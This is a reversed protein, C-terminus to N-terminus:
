RGLHRPQLSDADGGVFSWRVCCAAQGTLLTSRLGRCTMDGEVERRSQSIAVMPGWRMRAMNCTAGAGDSAAPKATSTPCAAPTTTRAVASWVLSFLRLDIDTMMICPTRGIPQLLIKGFLLKPPVQPSFTTAASAQLWNRLYTTLHTPRNKEGHLILLSYEERESHQADGKALREQGHLHRLRAANSPCITLPAAPSTFLMVLWPSLVVKLCKKNQM